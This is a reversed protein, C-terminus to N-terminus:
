ARKRYHTAQLIQGPVQSLPVVRTLVGLQACARPMGYVTCTAEDQGITLGGQDHIAKMGEAGDTGMGTLIVGMALDRYSDAVSKMLVDVSPIHLSGESNPDLCIRARSRPNREVKMHLGTPAIYIVGPLITEGDTAERVTLSCLSDMRQAFPGAFGPPMHQVILIPVSLDRPFVPLIEQLAKPGGTSTGFAVIAPSCASSRDESESRFSAPPKKSGLAPPRLNRSRAAAHIKALLDARIHFIDLSAPSLQKPIYDFAGAALADFTAEADKETTASVMIVPRPFQSMICRLTELGDLGPMQIDLTVVDPDLSCIKELAEAGSGATGVVAFSFESAIMRSLATRMFASDDVVLVRVQRPPELHQTM